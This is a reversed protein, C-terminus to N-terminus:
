SASETNSHDVGVFEYGLALCYVDTFTLVSSQTPWYSRSVLSLFHLFWQKLLQVTHLLSLGLSTIIKARHLATALPVVYVRDSSVHGMLVGLYKIYKVQKLGLDYM